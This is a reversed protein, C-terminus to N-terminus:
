IFLVGPLGCPWAAGSRYRYLFPFCRLRLLLRNALLSSDDAQFSASLRNVQRSDTSQEDETKLIKSSISPHESLSERESGPATAAARRIVIVPSEAEAFLRRPMLWVGTTAIATSVLFHRRSVRSTRNTKMVILKNLKLKQHLRAPRCQHRRSADHDHWAPLGQVDEAHREQPTQGLDPTPRSLPLVM